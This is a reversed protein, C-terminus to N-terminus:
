QPTKRLAEIQKGRLYSNMLEEDEQLLQQFAMQQYGNILNRILYKKGDDHPMMQYDASQMLDTMSEKLTPMGGVGKGRLEAFRAQQHSSLPVLGQVAEKPIRPVNYQLRLIENDIPDDKADFSYVPVLLDFAYGEPIPVDDGWLNKYNPLNKSLGPTRKMIQEVIGNAIKSHEDIMSRNIANFVNPMFSAIMKGAMKSQGGTSGLNSINEINRLVTGMEQAFGSDAMTKIFPMVMAQSIIEAQHPAEPDMMDLHALATKANAMLGFMSQFPVIDKYSFWTDGIRISYEPRGAQQAFFALGSGQPYGGTVEFGLAESLAWAAGTGMMIRGIARERKLGGAMLDSAVHPMLPAMITREMGYKIINVPTRVFPLFWRTFRDSTVWNAVQQAAPSLANTFTRYAADTAANKMDQAKPNAIIDYYAMKRAAHDIVVKGTKPNRSIAAKRFAERAADEHLAMRYAIIKSFKDGGMLAKGPLRTFAGFSAVMNGFLTDRNGTIVQRHKALEHTRLLVDPVDVEPTGWKTMLKFADSIGGGIASFRAATAYLSEKAGSYNGTAAQTIATSFTEFPSVALSTMNSGINKAHTLPSSLLGMNIWWEYLADDVRVTEEGQLTRFLAEPTEISDVLQSLIIDENKNEKLAAIAYDISLMDEATGGVKINTADLARAINMVRASQSVGSSSIVSVDKAIALAQKLMVKAVDDNTEKVIRALHDVHKVAMKSFLLGAAAEEPLLADNVKKGLLDELKLKQSKGLTEAHSQSKSLKGIMQPSMNQVIREYIQVLEGSSNVMSPVFVGDKIVKDAIEAAELDSIKGGFEGYLEKVSEVFSNGVGEEIQKYRSVVRQGQAIDDGIIRALVDKEKFRDVVKQIAGKSGTKDAAKALAMLEIGEDPDVVGTFRQMAGELVGKWEQAATGTGRTALQQMRQVKLGEKALAWTGMSGINLPDMFVDMALSAYPKMGEPMNPAVNELIQQSYNPPPEGYTPFLAEWAGEVAHGIANPINRPDWTGYQYDRAAMPAQVFALPANLPSALHFLLKSGHDKAKQWLNKHEMPAYEPDLIFTSHESDGNLAFNQPSSEAQRIMNVANSYRQNSHGSDQGSFEAELIDETSIRRTM